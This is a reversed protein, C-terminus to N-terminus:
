VDEKYYGCYFRNVGKVDVLLQEISKVAEIAGAKSDFVYQIDRYNDEICYGSSEVDYDVADVVKSYIREDKSGFDVIYREKKM